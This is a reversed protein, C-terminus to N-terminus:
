RTFNRVRNWASVPETKPAPEDLLADLGITSLNTTMGGAMAPLNLQSGHPNTALIDDAVGSTMIDNNNNMETAM